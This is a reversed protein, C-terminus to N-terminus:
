NKQTTVKRYGTGIMIALMLPLESMSVQLKKAVRQGQVAHLVYYDSCLKCKEKNRTQRITCGGIVM